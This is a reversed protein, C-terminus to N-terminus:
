PRTHFVHKRSRKQVLQYLYREPVEEQAGEQAGEQSEEQAAKVDKPGLLERWGEVADERALCLALM